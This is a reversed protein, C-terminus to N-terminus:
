GIQCEEYYKQNHYCGINGICKKCDKVKLPRAGDENYYTCQCDKLHNEKAQIYEGNDAYDFRSFRVKNNDSFLRLVKTISGTQEDKDYLEGYETNYVIM